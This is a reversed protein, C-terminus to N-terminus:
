EPEAVGIYIVVGDGGPNDKVDVVASPKWNNMAWLNGAADINTSTLRMIPQYSVLQKGAIVENGYLPWGNRLMVPAGATPVTMLQGTSDDYDRIITVGFPGEMDLTNGPKRNKEHGFNAIFMTGQKDIKIGWPANINQTFEGKYNLDKDFHIVRSSSIAVVFVDGAANTTVQRLEEYGTDGTNPNTYDSTWSALSKLAGDVVGIKYVTSKIGQGRNGINSVLANGDSDITVDFTCHYPSPNDDFDVFSLAKEPDDGPYMVLASNQNDFTYAGGPAPALPDQMGMSSMWLNGDKDYCLGQVRSLMNTYGNGPSNVKGTYDFLSVSGHQPNYLGQGWGFNGVAINEKKDDIAIGFGPGLIGGGVLPSIDAPSGDSNLVICHTGSNPSGARFNNAIWAKDEKDFVVFATGAILFNQAGSDNFKVTLTWQDPVPTAVAPYTALEPLSPTLLQRKDSILDYIMQVETFPNRIIYLLSPMFSGSAGALAGFQEYVNADIICYYLLNSLFNFLPYSNTELHNPSSSIVPSVAGNAHIFNNKMGHAINIRNADGSINISGDSDTNIFRAFCYAAAITSQASIYVENAIGQFDALMLIRRGNIAHTGAEGTYESVEITVYYSANNTAPVSVHFPYGTFTEESLLEATTQGIEYVKATGKTIEVGQVPTAFFTINKASM